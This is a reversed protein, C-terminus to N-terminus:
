GPPPIPAPDTFRRVVNELLKACQNQYGDIPLGGLFNMSGVSFVAGGNPTEFFTIDSRIVEAHTGPWEHGLREENVPQYGPDTVIAHAVVIAHHPTGLRVDARDLEHGAAGGGMLGREGFKQGPVAGLGPRMFAVRRDNIAPLWTYPHGLYHGQSSFGVGVLSQPTRGIRRWLGGLTGDFQHHYEGPEAAWTRIGAEARRVELAWTGAGHPVVKWYFGNGGLYCFRGGGETFQKIADLTETTHYEPHQGTLVCTFNKLLGVGEAHIDHDTIFEVPMGARDLFDILFSDACLWYAGSGYGSPDDLQFQNVRKDIMPRRMSAMAVGQGDLHDNYTSFGYEPHDTPTNSLAGWGPAKAAIRAARDDRTFNGYVQYTFTPLLIALKSQSGPRAARVAFPINDTGGDETTLHLTYLGSPWAKPIELALSEPWAVDGLDDAHFKIAAYHSADIRWDHVSGDWKSGKMARMPLNHLTGHAHQPGTDTVSDTGIAQSFDWAAVVKSGQSIRPAELKGTFGQAMTVAVQGSPLPAPATASAEEKLDLRPAHPRQHLTAGEARLTLTVTHWRQPTLPVACTLEVDGVRATAAGDKLGLRVPQAGDLVLLGASQVITPMVIVSLTVGGEPLVLRPVQAYSGRTIPRPHGAHVGDLACPMDTERYGPGGPNPDGCYVRSVRAGFKRPGNNHFGATAIHFKITEGPKVSWRDAYGTVPLAM